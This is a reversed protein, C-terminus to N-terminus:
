ASKVELRLAECLDYVDEATWNIFGIVFEEGGWRAVFCNDPTIENINEVVTQLVKDGILHTYTDNISKFHDIDVLALSFAKADGSTYVVNEM